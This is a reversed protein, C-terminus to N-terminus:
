RGGAGRLMNDTRELLRGIEVDRKQDLELRAKITAEVNSIRVGQADVRDSLRIGFGYIAILLLVIQLVNGVGIAKLVSGASSGSRQLDSPIASM